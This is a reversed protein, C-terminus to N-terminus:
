FYYCIHANPNTSEVEYLNGWLILDSQDFTVNEKVNKNIKQKLLSGILTSVTEVTTYIM